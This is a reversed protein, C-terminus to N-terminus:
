LALALTLVPCKLDLPERLGTHPLSVPGEYEWIGATVLTM